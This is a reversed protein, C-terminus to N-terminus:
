RYGAVDAPRGAEQVEMLYRFCDPRSGDLDDFGYVQALAGSSTL